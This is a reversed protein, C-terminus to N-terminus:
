KRPDYVYDVLEALQAATPREKIIEFDLAQQVAIDLGRVPVLAHREKSGFFKGSEKVVEPDVGAGQAFQALVEQHHPGYVHDMAKNYATMFRRLVDRRNKLVSASTIVVRSAVDKSVNVDDGTFIVRVEGKRALDLAFPAGSWAADIQGTMLMTRSAPPGGVATLKPKVKIQDAMHQILMHTVSAPRSYAINKGDFDEVRKIPSDAKVYWFIDPSGTLQNAIIRLPAGKTYAALVAHIAGQTAVDISGTTVTQVTEAGGAANIFSVDLNQEKFYGKETAITTFVSGWTDKHSVAAKVVDAASAAGPGAAVLIAAAAARAIFRHRM